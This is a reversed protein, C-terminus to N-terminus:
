AKHFSFFSLSLSLSVSLSFSPPCMNSDATIGISAESRQRGGGHGSNPLGLDATAGTRTKKAINCISAMRPHMFWVHTLQVQLGHIVPAAKHHVVAILCM